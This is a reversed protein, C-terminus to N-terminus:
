GAGMSAQDWLHLLHGDPDCLEAGYGWFRQGPPHAFAVGAASLRAYLATVDDVQVAYSAQGSRIPEGTQDLFLTLGAEDQLAAVGLGWRGGAEAEFELAFGLHRVYWDRSARWDRVPLTLHDLKPM